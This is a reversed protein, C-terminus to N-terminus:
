PEVLEVQTIKEAAIEYNSGAKWISEGWDIDEKPTIIISEVDWTTTNNQVGIIRGQIEQGYLKFKICDGIDILLMKRFVLRFKGM